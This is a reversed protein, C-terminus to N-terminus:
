KLLWPGSLHIPLLTLMKMCQAALIVAVPVVAPVVALATIDELGATPGGRVLGHTTDTEQHAERACPAVITATVLVRAIVNVLVVGVEARM